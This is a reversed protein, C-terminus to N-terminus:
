DHTLWLFLITFLKSMARAKEFNATKHVFNNCLLYDYSQLIYSACTPSSLNVPSLVKVLDKNKSPTRHKSPTRSKKVCGLDEESHKPLESINWNEVEPCVDEMKCM